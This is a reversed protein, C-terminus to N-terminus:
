SVGGFGKYLKKLSRARDNADIEPSNAVTSFKGDKLFFGPNYGMTEFMASKPLHQFDSWVRKFAEM